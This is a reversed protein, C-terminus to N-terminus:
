KGVEDTYAEHQPANKRLNAEAKVSANRITRRKEFYLTCLLAFWSAFALWSTIIVILVILSWELTAVFTRTLKRM